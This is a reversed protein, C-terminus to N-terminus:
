LEDETQHIPAMGANYKGNGSLKRSGKGTFLSFIVCHYLSLHYDHVKCEDNVFVWPLQSLFSHGHTEIFNLMPFTFKDSEASTELLNVCLKM